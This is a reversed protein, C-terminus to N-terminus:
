QLVEFRLILSKEIFRPFGEADLYISHFLSSRCHWEIHVIRIVVSFGKVDCLM